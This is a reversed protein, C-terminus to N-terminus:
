WAVVAAARADRPLAAIREDIAAAKTRAVVGVHRCPPTGAERLAIVDAIDALSLGLAQARRIIALRTADQDAYLRYGADTRASPALLGIREARAERAGPV